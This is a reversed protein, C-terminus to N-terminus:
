VGFDDIRIQLRFVIVTTEKIPDVKEVAMQITVAEAVFAGAEDNMGNEEKWIIYRSEYLCVIGSGVRGNLKSGDTFIKKFGGNPDSDM